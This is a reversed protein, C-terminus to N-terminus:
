NAQRAGQIQKEITPLKEPHNALCDGRQKLLKILEGNGYAVKVAAVELEYMDEQLTFAPDLYKLEETVALKIVKNMDRPPKGDAKRKENKKKFEDFWEKTLNLRVAYDCTTCTQM